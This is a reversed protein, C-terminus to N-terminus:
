LSFDQEQEVQKPAVNLKVTDIKKGATKKKGQAWVLGAGSLMAVAGLVPFVSKKESSKKAAAKPAPAPSGDADEGTFARIAKVLETNQLLKKFQPQTYHQGLVYYTKYRGDISAPGDLRHRMGKLWWEKYSGDIAPGGVRHLQGFSYWSATDGYKEAPGDECHFIDTGKIRCTYNGEKDVKKVIEM